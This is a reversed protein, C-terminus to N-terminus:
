KIWRNPSTQWHQDNYRREFAKITAITKFARERTVKDMRPIYGMILRVDLDMAGKANGASASAARMVSRTALARDASIFGSDNGYTGKM